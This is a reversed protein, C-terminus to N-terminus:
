LGLQLFGARRIAILVALGVHASEGAAYRAPPKLFSGRAARLLLLGWSPLGARAVFEIATEISPIAVDTLGRGARLQNESLADMVQMWPALESLLDRAARAITQWIRPATAARRLSSLFQVRDPRRREPFREFQPCFFQGLFSAIHRM